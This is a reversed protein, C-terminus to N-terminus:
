QSLVQSTRQIYINNIVWHEDINFPKQLMAMAVVFLGHLTSHIASTVVEKCRTDGDVSVAHLPHIVNCAYSSIVLTYWREGKRKRCMTLVLFFVRKARCQRSSSYIQRGQNWFQYLGSDNPLGHHTVTVVSRGFNKTEAVSQCGHRIIKKPM